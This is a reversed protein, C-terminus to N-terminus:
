HRSLNYLFHLIYNSRRPIVVKSRIPRSISWRVFAWQKDTVQGHPIRAILYIPKIVSPYICCSELPLLPHGTPIHPYLSLFSEGAM